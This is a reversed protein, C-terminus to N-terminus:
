ISEISLPVKFSVTIPFHHLFLCDFVSQVYHKMNASLVAIAPHTPIAPLAIIPLFQVIPPPAPICPCILIQSLVCIVPIVFTEHSM